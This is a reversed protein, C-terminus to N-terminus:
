AWHVFSGHPATINLVGQIGFCKPPSAASSETLTYSLRPPFCLSSHMFAPFAHICPICSQHLATTPTQATYERTNRHTRTHERTNWCDHTHNLYELVGKVNMAM